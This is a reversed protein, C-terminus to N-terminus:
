SGLAKIVPGHGEIWADLEEVTFWGHNYLKQDMPNLFFMVPYRTEIPGHSVRTKLTEGPRLAYYNGPGRSLGPGNGTHKGTFAKLRKRIGTAEALEEIRQIENDDTEIATRIDDPIRDPIAIILAGRGFPNNKGYGAGAYVALNGNIAQDHFDQLIGTTEDTAAIIAHRDDWKAQIPEESNATYNALLEDNCYYSANLGFALIALKKPKKKGRRSPKTVGPTCIRLSIADNTPAAKISRTSLGAHYTFDKGPVPIGLSSLLSNIGFEHEATFDAHLAIAFTNGEDTKGITIDSAHKPM